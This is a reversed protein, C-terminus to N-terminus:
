EEIQIMFKTIYEEQCSIAFENLGIEYAYGTLKLNNNCAYELLKKYMLPAKEWTGRQYGCLYRGKPKIFLSSRSEKGLAITYFGDYKDFIGNKIKNLSIFCGIGMRIQEKTWHNKFQEFTGAVDNWTYEIPLASLKKEECEEIRIEGDSIENCLLLQEKRTTLAKKIRKLKKIEADIEKEKAVATEIFKEPTPNKYYEGIEKISMNLEKLMLIYEFDMSQALDYYRYGNEGIESPSFLGIDDYYHLTRKNINHLKAFQATTLRVENKKM